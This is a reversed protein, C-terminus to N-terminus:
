IHILSLGFAGMFIADFAALEELAGDPLTEGTALYREAGYDFSRTEIEIREAAALVKLAERTVDVGIGDGPLVAFRKKM